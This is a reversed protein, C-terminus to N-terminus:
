LCSGRAETVEGMFASLSTNTKMLESEKFGLREFMAMSMVIVRASGDVMVHQV